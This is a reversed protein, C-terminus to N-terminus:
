QSGVPLDEVGGQGDPADDAQAEHEVAFALDIQDPEQEAERDDGAHIQADQTGRPAHRGIVLINQVQQNEALEENARDQRDVPDQHGGQEIEDEAHEFQ